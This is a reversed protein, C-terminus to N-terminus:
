RAPGPPLQDEDSQFTPLLHLVHRLRLQLMTYIGVLATPEEGPELLLQDLGASLEPYDALLSRLDEALNSNSPSSNM